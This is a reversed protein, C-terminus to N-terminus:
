NEKLKEIIEQIITDLAIPTCNHADMEVHYILGKDWDHWRDPTHIHGALNIVRAKLPKDVDNNSTITPYHSLYFLYGKYKLNTACPLVEVVNYASKYLEIRSSTCHNGTVIHIKGNLSKLLKLGTENDNLMVDGLLYVDDEKTVVANWNKVINENMETVNNFGRPKYIFDRDHCFHTDSCVYIM